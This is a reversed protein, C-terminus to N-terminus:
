ISKWQDLSNLIYVESSGICMCSSGPYVKQCSVTDEGQQVGLASSTPLNRVDAPEDCYFDRVGPTGTKQQAPDIWYM